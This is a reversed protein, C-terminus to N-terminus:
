WVIREHRRDVVPMVFDFLPHTSFELWLRLVSLFHPRVHAPDNEPDLHGTEFHRSFERSRAYTQRCVPCIIHASSPDYGANEIVDRSEIREMFDHALIHNQLGLLDVTMKCSAFPCQREHPLLYSRMIDSEKQNRTGRVHNRSHLRLVVLPMHDARCIDLPCVAEDEDTHSTRLHHRLKDDRYFAKACASVPCTYRVLNEHSKEHRGLEYRRKFTGKYKCGPYDCKLGNPDSPTRTKKPRHRRDEIIRSGSQFFNTNLNPTLKPFANMESTDNQLVHQRRKESLIQVELASPPSCLSAAQRPLLGPFPTMSGDVRTLAELDPTHGNCLIRGIPREGSLAAADAGDSNELGPDRGTQTWAPPWLDNSFDFEFTEPQDM